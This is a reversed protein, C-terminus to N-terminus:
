ESICKKTQKSNKVLFVLACFFLLVGAVVLPRFQKFALFQERGLVTYNLVQTLTYYVGLGIKLVGAGGNDTQVKTLVWVFFPILLAYNQPWTMPSFWLIFLLSLSLKFLRDSNKFCLICLGLLSAALLLNSSLGTIGLQALIAPLGLNDVNLFHKATSQPLFALWEGHDTVLREWGFQYGYGLTILVLFFISGAVIKFFDSRKRGILFYPLLLANTPKLLIVFVLVASLALRARNEFFLMLALAILNYQGTLVEIDLQALALLVAVLAIFMTNKQVIRRTCEYAVYFTAVLTSITSAVALWEFRIWTIPYFLFTQFPPKTHELYDSLVYVSQGNFLRVAADYLIKLDVKGFPSKIIGAALIAFILAVAAWSGLTQLRSNQTQSSKQM